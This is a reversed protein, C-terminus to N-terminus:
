KRHYFIQSCGRDNKKCLHSRFHPVHGIASLQLIRLFIWLFQLDLRPHIRFNFRSKRTLQYMEPLINM